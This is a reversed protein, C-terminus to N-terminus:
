WGSNGRWVGPDAYRSERGEVLSVLSTLDHSRDEGSLCFGAHVVNLKLDVQSQYNVGSRTWHVAWGLNLRLARILRGGGAEVARAVRQPDELSPDEPTQRPPSPGSAPAVAWAVEGDWWAQLWDGDLHGQALRLQVTKGALLASENDVKRVKTLAVSEIEYSEAPGLCELAHNWWYWGPAPARARQWWNWGEPSRLKVRGGWYPALQRALTM